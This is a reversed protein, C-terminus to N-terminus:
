IDIELSLDINKAAHTIAGSSIATVGPILYQELNSRNIGGSIEVLCRGKILAIAEKVMEPSMNDLLVADVASEVAEEVEALSKAEAEILSAPHRQRVYGVAKALGGALAVHNDKILALDFLGFRHNRGGGVRVAYKELVRLGPTTKRTDVIMIGKEAADAALSRALTAVGSMRQLLNLATREGALLLGAKGSLTAIKKPVATIYTGDECDFDVRVAADLMQFALAFIAAGALVAPEKLYLSAVVQRDYGPLATSTIDEFMPAQGPEFPLGFDEAFALQLLRRVLEASMSALAATQEVGASSKGSALAVYGGPHPTYPVPLPLGREDAEFVTM